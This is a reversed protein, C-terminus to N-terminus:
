INPGYSELDKVSYKKFNSIFMKALNIREKDYKEKDKWLNRPNLINPDVNKCRKPIELNFNDMEYFEENKM